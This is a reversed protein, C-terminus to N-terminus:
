EAESQDDKPDGSGFQRSQAKRKRLNERLKAALKDERTPKHNEDAMRNGDAAM